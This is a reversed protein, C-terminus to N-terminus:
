HLGTRSNAGIAASSEILHRISIKGTYNGFLSIQPHEKPLVTHLKALTDELALSYHPLARPWRFVELTEVPQSTGFLNQMQEEILSQLTADTGELRADHQPSGIFTISCGEGKTRGEFISSNFLMGYFPRQEPLPFLCGFAKQMQEPTQAFQCTVSMLPVYQVHKLLKATDSGDLIEAAAYAPVTLVHHTDGLFGLSFPTNFQIKHWLKHHLADVLQGMGQAFSHTGRPSGKPARPGHQVGEFVKRFRRGDGQLKEVLRPFLLRASLTSAPMAYIGLMAPEILNTVAAQGFLQGLDGLTAITAPTRGAMGRVIHLAELFHFPFRRFKGERYIYRAKATPKAPLLELKLEDCLTQLAKSWVIGNAAGEALFGQAFSTDLMGGPRHSREFLTVQTGAKQLAHGLLLGSIGAGGIHVSSTQPLRGIFNAPFKM